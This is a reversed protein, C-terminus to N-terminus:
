SVVDWYSINRRRLPFTAVTEQGTTLEVREFGRLQRVPQQASEPFGLYLQPVAAGNVSGMNKVTVSINTVTDWLDSYGGVTRHGSPAVSLHPSQSITLDSYSFSTYSLGHGFPYRPTIDQSDFYRYDIYVGETFNCQSTYCIGVNYDSENKPITYTLHGSPSVDGYLLCMWSQIAPNNTHEVWQDLLRPGVTNVVVITNNCNGAVTRVMSDQDDNYLETRDKGEGSLANLLVLCIDSNSAYGDYSPSVVTSGTVPQILSSGASSTYNDQLIWNLIMRDETAKVILPVLPSVLYPYSAQGSGNRHWSPGTIFGAHAGFVSMKRVSKLPLADNENKLLVMSHAGYKRILKSHNGRVDVWAGESQEAPQLGNDLHAYYYGMLNRIAMDDLCAESLTGNALLAKMASTTWITNSGYDEGNASTDSASSSQAKTDPYVMGPFGLETKLQQLILDSNQCSLTNNVKIMACMVAGMGNKVADYFPWLYAEHLTKDDTNSSYPLPGQAPNPGESDADNTRNTEQENLLFHKGGAIVGNEAYGKVTLGTALGNLYPDPGFAEVLRGGWPTRGLPQSTPGNLVQIGKKYFGSGVARAQQYIADRDWTMAIASALPFASVYYFDQVGMDGDAFVMASFTENEHFASAKKYVTKWDESLIVGNSNLLGLSSSSSVAGALGLSAAAAFLSSTRM